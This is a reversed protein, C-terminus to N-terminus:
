DGSASTAQTGVSLGMLALTEEAAAAAAPGQGVLVCRQRPLCLTVNGKADMGLTAIRGGAPGSVGYGVGDGPVFGLKAQVRREFDTGVRRVCAQEDATLQTLPLAARDPSLCFAKGYDIGAESLETSM